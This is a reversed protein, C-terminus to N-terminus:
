RRQCLPLLSTEKTFSLAVFIIPDASMCLNASNLTRPNFADRAQPLLRMLSTQSANVGCRRWHVLPSREHRMDGGSPFAAGGSKTSFFAAVRRKVVNTAAMELQISRTGVDINGSNAQSTVRTLIQGGCGLLQHTGGRPLYGVLTRRVSHLMSEIRRGNTMFFFHLPM